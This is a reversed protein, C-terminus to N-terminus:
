VCIGAIVAPIGAAFGNGGVYDRKYVAAVTYGHVSWKDGLGAGGPAPAEGAELVM